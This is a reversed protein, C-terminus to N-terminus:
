LDMPKLTREACALQSLFYIFVCYPGLADGEIVGRERQGYYQFKGETMLSQHTAPRIATLGTM